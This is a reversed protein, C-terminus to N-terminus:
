LRNRFEYTGSFTRANLTHPNSSRSDSVTISIQIATSTKVNGTPIFSVSMSANDMIPDGNRTIKNNASAYTVTALSFDAETYAGSIDFCGTNPKAFRFIVSSNTSSSVADDPLTHGDGLNYKNDAPACGQYGARRADAGIIELAIRGSEQMQSLENNSQSSLLSGNFLDTVGLILITSILIAIMLEVLSFAHQRNM